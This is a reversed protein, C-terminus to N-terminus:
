KLNPDDKGLIPYSNTAGDAFDPGSSSQFKVLLKRVPASVVMDDGVATEESLSM